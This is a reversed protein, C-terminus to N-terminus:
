LQVIDAAEVVVAGPENEQRAVAVKGLPEGMGAKMHLLFVLYSEIVSKTGFVDWGQEFAKLKGFPVGLRLGHRDLRFSAETDDEGLAVIALDSPHKGLDAVLDLSEFPDANAAKDHGLEGGPLIVDEVM